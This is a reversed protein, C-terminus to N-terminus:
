GYHKGVVRLAKPWKLKPLAFQKPKNFQQVRWEKDNWSLLRKISATFEGAGENSIFIMDKGRIPPLRPNVIAMDGPEFAPIMSEGVVLVAYGERVQRLYWPRPIFEIPDTSVVMEGPGGEAASFVPLDETTFPRQQEAFGGGGGGGGEGIVEGASVGFAKAALAITRETLKREGRELKIFQGRSIGMRDAAESLTWARDLRLRKLSNGMLPIIVPDGNGM